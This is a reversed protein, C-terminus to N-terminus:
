CCVQPPINQSNVFRQSFYVIPQRFPLNPIDSHFVVHDCNVRYTDENTISCLCNPLSSTSKYESCPVWEEDPLSLLSSSSFSSSSFLDAGRQLLFIMFNLPTM